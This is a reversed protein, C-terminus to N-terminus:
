TAGPACALAPAVILATPHAHLALAFMAAAGLLAAPSRQQWAWLSLWLSALVAVEVLSTHSLVLQGLTNWGPLAVAAAFVLGLSADRWRRGLTYALPIKLAALAGIGFAVGGISGSLVLVLAILYYWAPGLQWIGNLSPGYTPWAEGQAISWGWALDRGSDVILAAFPFSALTVGYLAVLLLLDGHPLREQVRNM